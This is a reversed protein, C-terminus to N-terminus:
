EGKVNAPTTSATSETPQAGCASPLPRPMGSQGTSPRASSRRGLSRVMSGSSATRAPGSTDTKAPGHAHTKTEKHLRGIHITDKQTAENSRTHKCTNFAFNAHTKRLEGSNARAADQTPLRRHYARPCAQTHVHNRTRCTDGALLQLNEDEALQCLSRPWRRSTGSNAESCYHSLQGHGGVLRHGDQLAEDVPVASEKERAPACVYVCLRM